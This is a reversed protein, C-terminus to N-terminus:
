RCISCCGTPKTLFDASNKTTWIYHLCILKWTGLEWIFHLRIDMHKTRFSNQSVKSRALDITGQNNVGVPISQLIYNLHLESLLSSFWALERGLESLSRYKAETSLLFVTSQRTAKWSLLQSSTLVVYGTVSTEPCNGWDANAQATLRISASWTFLLGVQKIGSLYWFVQQAEQFHQM